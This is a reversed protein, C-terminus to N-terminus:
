SRGSYQITIQTSDAQGMVSVNITSEGGNRNGNIAGSSGGDSDEFTSVDVEYGAEELESKYFDLVSDRDDSTEM